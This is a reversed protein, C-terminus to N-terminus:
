QQPDRWMMWAPPGGKPLQIQEMVKFGNREYLAKSRESSAELYAAAGETDCKELVPAMLRTGLGQGQASPDVGIALLYYHPEKPHKAEIMNFASMVRPLGRLGTFSLMAPMLSLDNLIGHPRQDPPNWLAAGQHGEAVYTEGYPYTIKSVAMRMFRPLRKARAEDDPLFFRMVPDDFFAKAIVAAVGEFDAPTVKRIAGPATAEGM